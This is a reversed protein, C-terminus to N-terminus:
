TCVESVHFVLPGILFFHKTDESVTSCILNMCLLTHCTGFAKLANPNEEPPHLSKNNSGSSYINM